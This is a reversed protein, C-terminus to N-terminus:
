IDLDNNTTTIDNLKLKYNYLCLVKDNNKRIFKKLFLNKSLLEDFNKYTLEGKEKKTMNIYVESYKFENFIDKMKIYDKNNDTLIYKDDIFQYIKDSQQLYKKNENTIETPLVLGNKNYDKLRQIIIEFLAQKYEDKWNQTKYTDNIIGDISKDESDYMSSDVFKSKFPITILRRLVAEDVEDLNPKDNCELILTSKLLTNTNNSHNLRANISCDGTLEKMISVKINKSKEPEQAVIFRKNHCNALEPNSGTKQSESLLSSKLKYSYNNTDSGFMCMALGNLLGKGNGGCGSCVVFKELNQGMMGTSIITLYFNRILEDKLITNILQQLDDIKKKDYNMNYDYGTTMSIFYSPEPKIFKMLKTDYLKNNFSFLYPIEDFKINNNTLKNCIDEIYEKRKKINRINLINNRIKDLQNRMNENKINKLEYDQYKKFLVEFYTKDIFNHIISKKNDDKMWYVNNYYYLTDNCYIFEDGYLIKFYDAIAGTTTDNFNFAYLKLYEKLNDKKAYYKLTGIKVGDDKCKFSLYTKKDAERNYRSYSSSFNLFIELGEEMLENYIALGIKIWENYDDLRDSSILSVLAEIEKYKNDIDIEEIIKSTKKPINDTKKCSITENLKTNPKDYRSSQLSYYDILTEYNDKLEEITENLNENSNFDYLKTLKYSPQGMKRAGYLFWGNSEVVAKDIIKSVSESTGKFINTKECIDIVEDRIMHRTDADLIVGTFIIHFGDKVKDNKITYNPKEFVSIKIDQLSYEDIYKIIVEKYAGIINNIMSNNYLRKMGETYDDNLDIDVLICSNQKQKELMCLEVNDNICKTYLSMFEKRSNKDLNFKGNFEGYALHTPKDGEVTRHKNLFTYLNSQSIMM